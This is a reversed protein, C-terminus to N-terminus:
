SCMQRSVGIRSNPIDYFIRHNQQQMNAIVNLVSNFNDPAAAMALCTTSGFSSHILFNDQPLTVNMGDFMFTISPIAKITVPVNFCTDFGGLATVTANGMRKRFEDRVGIYAPKVLSTFSTGSDFITGAGSNPDFAFASPPIDVVKSGVKIGVVKVYYLSSRRPNRLLPTTKINVPQGLPGLRLSGTFNTSKFNPLCYSFTSKYLNYTQSLLSLPGRGLGLLGQPPTSGGTTKEICGFTFTPVPDQALQLTDQSVRTQVSSSGYTFNSACTKDLSCLPGPVQACQPAGCPVKKYTSSKTPAFVTTSCGVCDTCPIFANDNSNDLAMLLTQGPTGFVAKVIYTPSQVINKGYGIPVSSKKAAVLSTLFQLRARDKTQMQLVTDEWSPNNRPRLPSSPSYMHFVELDTPKKTLGHSLTLSLLIYLSSLLLPLTKM